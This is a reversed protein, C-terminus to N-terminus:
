RRIEAAASRTVAATVNARSTEHVEELVVAIPGPDGERLVRFRFAAVQDLDIGRPSASAFRVVGPAAGNAARLTGDTFTAEGEFALRTSDYTLRGTVSGVAGVAGRPSIAVAVTAGAGAVTMVARPTLTPAATPSAGANIPASDRCGGLAIAAVFLVRSTVSHNTM